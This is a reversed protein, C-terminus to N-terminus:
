PVKRRQQAAYRQPLHARTINKAGTLTQDTFGISTTFDAGDVDAGDFVASTLDAQGFVTGKLSANRFIAQSATAQSFSAKDLISGTFDTRVAVAQTFKAGQLKARKFDADDLHAFSFDANEINGEALYASRLTAGHFIAGDLHARSLGCDDFNSGDLVANRLDVAGFNIHRFDQHIGHANPLEADFLLAGSAELVSNMESRRRLEWAAGEQLIASSVVNDASPDTVTGSRPQAAFERLLAWSRQMFPYDRRSKLFRNIVHSGLIYDGPQARTVDRFMALRPLSHVAAAQIALQPSALQETTASFRSEARSSEAEAQSELFQELTFLAGILVPIALVFPKARRWKARWGSTGGTFHTAISSVGDAIAKAEPVFLSVQATAPAIAASQTLSQLASSPSRPEVQKADVVLVGVDRIAANGAAPVGEPLTGGPPTVPLKDVPGASEEGM